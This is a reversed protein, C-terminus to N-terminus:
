LLESEKMTNYMAYYRGKLGMLETHTGSEAVVGNDLYIIRDANIITSLRHAVVITTQNKILKNLSDM